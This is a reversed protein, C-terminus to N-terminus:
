SSILKYVAMLGHMHLQAHLIRHPTTQLHQASQTVPLAVALRIVGSRPQRSPRSPSRPEAAADSPKLQPVTCFCHSVTILTKLQAVSVTSRTDGMYPVCALMCLRSNRRSVHSHVGTRRRPPYVHYGDPPPGENLICESWVLSSTQTRGQPRRALPEPRHPEDPSMALRGQPRCAM